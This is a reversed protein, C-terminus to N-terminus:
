APSSDIWNVPKYTLAAKPRKGLAEPDGPGNEPVPPRVAMLLAWANILGMFTAVLIRCWRL